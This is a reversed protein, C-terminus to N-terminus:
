VGTVVQLVDTQKDYYVEYVGTGSIQAATVAARRPGDAAEDAREDRLTCAANWDNRDSHGAGARHTGVRPVM